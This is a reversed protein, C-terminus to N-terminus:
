QKPQQQANIPSSNTSPTIFKSHIIAKDANTNASFANGPPRQIPRSAPMPKATQPNPSIAAATIPHAPPPTPNNCRGPSKSGDKAARRDSHGLPRIVLGAAGPLWGRDLWGDGWSSFKGPWPPPVALSLEGVTNKEGMERSWFFKKVGGPLWGRGM